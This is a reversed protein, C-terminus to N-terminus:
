SHLINKSKESNESAKLMFLSFSNWVDLLFSIKQQYVYGKEMNIM